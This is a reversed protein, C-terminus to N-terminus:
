DSTVLFVGYSKPLELSVHYIKESGETSAEIGIVRAHSIEGTLSDWIEPETSSSVKLSIPQDSDTYNILYYYTRDGKFVSWSIGDIDEGTHIYPDIIWEPYHPLSKKCCSIGETITLKQPCCGDLWKILTDLDLVKIFCVNPRSMIKDMLGKVEKDDRLSTGYVPLDEIVALKGGQSTFEDLLRAMGLPLVESMPLVFVPYSLGTLKNVLKGGEAKFLDAADSPLVTFDRNHEQLGNLLIQEKRDIEAAREDKIFPGLHYGHTFKQDPIYHLWFTEIPHYILVDTMRKTSEMVAYLRRCMSNAEKMHEWGQWQFFQSPPWDDKRFDRISYFFGHNSITRVGQSYLWSVMRIYEEFTLDWGCAAFVECFLGSKGYVEAASSAFRIDLSGIGKGLHDVGPRDTERLQKMYDGSYRVHGALTEEALLHPCYDIGHTRCWDRIVKHYNSRYLDSILAFYDIRVRGAEPGPLILESLHEELPYGYRAEFLDFLEDTWPLAHCFRTEDNFTATIVKGFADPFERYYAEYTIDVFNRTAEANMYDPDYYGSKGFMDTSIKAVYVITDSDRKLEFDSESLNFLAGSDDDPQFRTIDLKEKTEADYCFINDIQMKKGSVSTIAAKVDINKERLKVPQCRFCEGAPVLYEQITLYKERFSEHKTIEGNAIGAPWNFEDYLWMTEGHEKKYDIVTRIHGMWEEDLYDGEFGTRAHPSNCTIGSDSMLSLQRKLEDDTLRDNWFWLPTQAENLAPDHTPDRFDEKKMAKEKIM